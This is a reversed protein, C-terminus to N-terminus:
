LSPMAVGTPDDAQDAGAAHLVLRDRGSHKARYLALDAAHLWQPLSAHGAHAPAAGISVSCRLAPAQPLAIARVADLIAHGIRRADDESAGPVVISFEDGGYGGAIAEGGAHGRICDAVRRLVDDGTAHGHLDNAAKFHDVDVMMLMAAGGDAHHSALADGARAQWHGRTSVGTLVDTRILADLAHNKERVKHILLNTALSVALTHILLLPLSALVVQMSSAPAFAFGTLAAGALMAAAVGPLSKWWLGRVGTSIKDVTALTLILVSPLLNFHMLPAWLGAIASDMLLNRLETRYPNRSRRTLLLAVHPWLFSTFAWYAWQLPGARNEHLVAATAIGALAM